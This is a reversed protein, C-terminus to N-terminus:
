QFMVFNFKERPAATIAGLGLNHSEGFILCEHVTRATDRGSETVSTHYM